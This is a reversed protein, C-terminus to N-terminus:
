RRKATWERSVVLARMTGSMTDGELTADFEVTMGFRKASLNVQRGKITGSVPLDGGESTIVGSLSEGNQGLTLTMAEAGGKRKRVSMEWLGAASEGGGTPQPESTVQPQSAPLTTEPPASVKRCRSQAFMAAVLALTVAGVLKEHKVLWAFLNKM